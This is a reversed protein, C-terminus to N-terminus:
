ISSSYEPPYLKASAWEICRDVIEIALAAESTSIVLPTNVQMQKFFVEDGTCAWFSLRYRSNIGGCGIGDSSAGPTALAVEKRRECDM